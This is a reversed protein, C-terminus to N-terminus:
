YIICFISWMDHLNKRTSNSSMNTALPSFHLSIWFWTKSRSKRKLRPIQWSHGSHCKHLKKPSPYFKWFDLFIVRLLKGPLTTTPKWLIVLTLKYKLVFVSWKILISLCVDGMRLKNCFFRSKHVKRLYFLPPDQEQKDPLFFLCKM